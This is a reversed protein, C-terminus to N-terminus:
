MKGKCIEEMVNEGFKDFIHRYSTALHICTRDLWKLVFCEEEKMYVYKAGFEEYNEM